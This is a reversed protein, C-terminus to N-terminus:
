KVDINYSTVIYILLGLKAFLHFIYNKFRVKLRKELKQMWASNRVRGKNSVQFISNLEYDNFSSFEQWVEGPIPDSCFFDLDSIWYRHIRVNKRRM